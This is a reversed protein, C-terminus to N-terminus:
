INTSEENDLEHWTKTNHSEMELIISYNVLNDANELTCSKTFMHEIIAKWSLYLRDDLSKVWPYVDKFYRELAETGIHDYKVELIKKVQNVGKAIAVILEPLKRRKDQNVIREMIRRIEGTLQNDTWDEVRTHYARDEEIDGDLRVIHFRQELQDMVEPRMMRRQAVANYKGYADYIPINSFCIVQVDARPTFSAGHSKRNGTFGSAIGGTLAKLDSISMKKDIGVEEFILFQANRPVSCFNNTDEIYHANYENCFRQGEYSKGFGQIKSYIYYHKKKINSKINVSQIIVKCEPYKGSKTPPKLEGGDREYNTEYHNFVMEFRDGYPLDPKLNMERTLRDRSELGMEIFPLEKINVNGSELLHDVPMMTVLKNFVKTEAIKPTPKVISRIYDESFLISAKAIKDVQREDKFYAKIFDEPLRKFLTIRMPKKTLKLCKQLTVVGSHLRLPKGKAVLLLIRDKTLLYDLGRENSFREINCTNINEYLELLFNKASAM